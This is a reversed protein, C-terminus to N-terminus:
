LGNKLLREIIVAVGDDNNSPAIVDAVAKVADAANAMAAGVGAWEIMETDNESDGFAMVDERKVGLMSAVAEVSKAKNVSISMVDLNLKESECFYLKDKFRKALESEIKKFEARDKPYLVIKELPKDVRWFDEGLEIGDLQVKQEYSSVLESNRDRVYFRDGVFKFFYWDNEKCLKCLESATPVDITNEFYVEGTVPNSIMAGNYFVCPDTIGVKRVHQMAGHPMRGTAAIVHIGQKIAARLADANRRSVQRDDGLLTFDLDVAILKPVFSM